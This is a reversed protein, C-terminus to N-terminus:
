DAPAFARLLTVRDGREWQVLGRVPPLSEVLRLVLPGPAGIM